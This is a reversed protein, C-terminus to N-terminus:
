KIFNYLFISIYRERTDKKWDKKQPQNALVWEGVEINKVNVEFKEQNKLQEYWHPQQYKRDEMKEEVKFNDFPTEIESPKLGGVAKNETSNIAKVIDPLIKAM